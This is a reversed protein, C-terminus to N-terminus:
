MLFMGPAFVPSALARLCFLVALIALPPILLPAYWRAPARVRVLRSFLAGLAAPGDVMRTLALSCLGPGLLMVPFMPIGAIRPPTQHRLLCPAAVSFAGLWSISFTLLFFSRLPHRQAVEVASM